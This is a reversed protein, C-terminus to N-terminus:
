KKWDQKKFFGHVKISNLKAYIDTFPKGILEEKRYHLMRCLSRNVSIIEGGPSVITIYTRLFPELTSWVREGANPGDRKIATVYGACPDDYGFQFRGVHTTLDALASM